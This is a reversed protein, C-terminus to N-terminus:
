WNADKEYGLRVLLDGTTEKFLRKHEESFASRWGGTKGSRFTPSRQPDICDLLTQIASEYTRQEPASRGALTFGRQLAHDLVRKVQARVDAIFDEYRLTLVESRDLWGMFPDFRQRIDPLAIAAAGAISANLRQEFSTLTERYYRAHIHHQAMESVYHVHSVAVDRPDRLIFYAIVGPQCLFQIAGPLAHVHGYSIDGPLLRRFDGLIEDETRQRGTDGLFTVIAPLGSDVAPGIKPFGSMVQTLLHTGSKPFSNAFFIPAGALSLRPPSFRQRHRIMQALRRVARRALRAQFVLSQKM